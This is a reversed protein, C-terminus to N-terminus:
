ADMVLTINMAKHFDEDIINQELAQIVVVRENDITPPLTLDRDGEGNVHLNLILGKPTKIENNINSRFNIKQYILIKHLTTKLFHYILM